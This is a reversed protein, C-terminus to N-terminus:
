LITSALPLRLFFTSGEGEESEFWIEGAHSEVIKKAISLGLGTSHENATGTRGSATFPEFLGAKLSSPIGIGTDHFKLVVGRTDPQIAVVVSGNSPTFKIANTILNDIVRSFKTKNISCFLRHPSPDM